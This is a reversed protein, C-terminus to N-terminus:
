DSFVPEVGTPLAMIENYFKSEREEERMLPWTGLRRRGCSMSCETRLCGAEEIGKAFWAGFYVPNFAKGQSTTLLSM